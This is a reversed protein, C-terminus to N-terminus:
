ATALTSPVTSLPVAFRGARLVGAVEHIAAPDTTPDGRVMLLDADAGAAVRGKHGAVGCAEAALSTASRLVETATWGDGSAQEVAYPLVHHPKSPGVGGDPGLVFRVGSAHCARINAIIQPLRQVIAPPPPPAGPILGLTISAFTGREAMREVVAQDLEVGDSTFFTAHEVTDVGADTADAIAATGHAHAAVRLGHAHAEDAILRLEDLTFQSIWPSTQPSLNGGSAMVKVWQCGREARERVAASLAETGAAEGGLMAFHGGPTTIPPGSAIIEPLLPAGARQSRRSLAVALYERDGLDRITTVGRQLATAARKEMQELLTAEDVAVVNAVCTPTADLVLHLHSDILGPLLTTDGDLEILETGDPPTAGTTDVATIRGNDVLVLANALMREGDFMQQARIALRAEM